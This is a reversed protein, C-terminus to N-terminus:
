AARNFSRRAMGALGVLGTGFLIVAAPVPIAAPQITLQGGATLLATAVREYTPANGDINVKFVHLLQDLQGHTNFGLQGNVTGNNTLFSTFSHGAAKSTIGPNNALPNAAGGTANAHQGAWSLFETAAIDPFSNGQQAASITPSVSSFFAHLGDTSTGIVSYRLGTAAGTNLTALDGSINRTTQSAGPALATGTSGTGLNEYRENDGGYVFFGLDGFNFGLASAQSPLGAVALTSLAAAAITWKVQSCLSKM